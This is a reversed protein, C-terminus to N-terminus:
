VKNVAAIVKVNKPSCVHTPNECSHILPNLSLHANKKQSHITVVSTLIKWNNQYLSRHPYYPSKIIHVLNAQKQCWRLSLQPTFRFMDKGTQEQKLYRLLQSKYCPKDADELWGTAGYRHGLCSPLGFASTKRLHKKKVIGHIAQLKWCFVSFPHVHHVTELKGQQKGWTWGVSFCSTLVSPHFIIVSQAPVEFMCQWTETTSTKNKNVTSRRKRRQEGSTTVLSRCM